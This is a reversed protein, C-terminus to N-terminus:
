AAGLRTVMRETRRALAGVATPDLESAAGPPLEKCLMSASAALAIDARWAADFAAAGPGEVVVDGEGDLSFTLPGWVGPVREAVVAAVAAMVPLHAPRHEAPHTALATILARQLDERLDGPEHDAPLVPAGPIGDSVEEEPASPVEVVEAEFRPRAARAEAAIVVAREVLEARIAAPESCLFVVINNSNTLTPEDPWSLVDPADPVPDIRRRHGPLLRETDTVLYAQATGTTSLARWIRGLAQQPDTEVLPLARGQVLDAAKVLNEFRQRDSIDAFELRSPLPAPRLVGVVERTNKLFRVLVQVADLAEGGDGPFIPQAVAGHVVFVNGEDALYREKLEDIWAPWQM